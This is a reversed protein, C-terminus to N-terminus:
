KASQAGPEEPWQHPIREVKTEDYGALRVAALMQQYDAESIKPTRSMLWVWRRSPVGIITRSYDENVYIILYTARFPWVFQMGWEANTEPNRVFGKPRFTKLPGDFANQRFTYTTEIVGEASLRYSEVANHAGKELFIPISAIVFWDGMFRQLNLRRELPQLPTPGGACATLCVATLTLLARHFPM